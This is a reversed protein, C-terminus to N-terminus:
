GGACSCCLVTGHIGCPSAPRASWDNCVSWSPHLTCVILGISERELLLCAVYMLNWDPKKQDCVVSLEGFLGAM